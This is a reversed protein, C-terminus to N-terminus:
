GATPQSSALEAEIWCRGREFRLIEKLKEWNPSGNFAKPITDANSGSDKLVDGARLRVGDGLADVLKRLISQQIEGTFVLEAGNITLVSDDEALSVVPTRPASANGDQELGPDPGAEPAPSANPEPDKIPRISVRGWIGPYVQIGIITLSRVYISSEEFNAEVLEWLDASIDERMSNPTLPLKFGTAELYSARLKAIVFAELEMRRRAWEEAIEKDDSRIHEDLWAAEEAGGYLSLAEKLSVGRERRGLSFM